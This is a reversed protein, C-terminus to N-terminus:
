ELLEAALEKLKEKSKVLIIRGAPTLDYYIRIRGNVNQSSSNLYGEKEMQHLIPYITGPSASYGHKKLEEIMEAGYIPKQDAHYLIHMRIFGAYMAKLM